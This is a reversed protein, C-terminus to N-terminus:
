SRSRPHEQLLKHSCTGVLQLAEDAALTTLGRRCMIEAIALLYDRCRGKCPEDLLAGAHEPSQEIGEVLTRVIGYRSRPISRKQKAIEIVGALFLPVQTNRGLDVGMGPAQLGTASGTNSWDILIFSGIRTM